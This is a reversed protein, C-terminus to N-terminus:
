APPKVGDFGPDVVEVGPNVVEVFTEGGLGVGSLVDGEGEADARVVEVSRSLAGFPGVGFLEGGGGCFEAGQGVLIEGGVVGGDGGFEDSEYGFVGVEAEGGLVSGFEREPDVALAGAEGGPVFEEGAGSACGALVAGQAVYGDADGFNGGHAEVNEIHRRDVGNAVGVAFAFVVGGGGLGVVYSARPGYARSFAAM